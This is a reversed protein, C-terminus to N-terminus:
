DQQKEGAPPQHRCWEVKANGPQRTIWHGNVGYGVNAFVLLNYVGVPWPARRLVHFILNSIRQRSGKQSQWPHLADAGSGHKTKGANVDDELILDIKVPATRPNQFFEIGQGGTQQRLCYLRGEPWIGGSQPLNKPVGEFTTVGCAFGGSAPVGM